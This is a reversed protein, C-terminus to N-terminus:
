IPWTAELPLLALLFIFHEVPDSGHGLFIYGVINNADAVFSEM